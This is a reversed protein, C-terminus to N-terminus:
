IIEFDILNFLKKCQHLNRQQKKWCHANAIQLKCNWKAKESSHPWFHKVPFWLQFSSRNLLSTAINCYSNDYDSLMFSKREMWNVDRRWVMQIKCCCIILWSPPGTTLMTPEHRLTVPEIGTTSYRKIPIRRRNLWHLGPAEYTLIVM